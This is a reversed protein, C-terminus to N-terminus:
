ICVVLWGRTERTIYISRVTSHGHPNKQRSINMVVRQQASFEVGGDNQGGMKGSAMAEFAFRGSCVNSYISTPAVSFLLLMPTTTTAHLVRIRNPQAAGVVSQRMSSISCLLISYLVSFTEVGGGGEVRHYNNYISLCRGSDSQSAACPSRKMACCAMSVLVKGLVSPRVPCALSRRLVNEEGRDVVDSKWEMAERRKEMNSGPWPYKEIWKAHPAMKNLLLLATRDLGGGTSSYVAAFCRM